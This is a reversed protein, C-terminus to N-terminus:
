ALKRWCAAYVADDRCGALCHLYVKGRQTRVMLSPIRDDHAPCHLMHGRACACQTKGCRLSRLVKDTIRTKATM